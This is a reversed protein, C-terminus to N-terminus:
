SRVEINPKYTCQRDQKILGGREPGYFLAPYSDSNTKCKKGKKTIVKMNLNDTLTTSVKIHPTKHGNELTVFKFEAM